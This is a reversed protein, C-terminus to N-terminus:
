WSWSDEGHMGLIEYKEPMYEERFYKCDDSEEDETFGLVVDKPQSFLEM